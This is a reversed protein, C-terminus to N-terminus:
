SRKRNAEIAAEKLVQAQGAMFSSPSPLVMPSLGFAKQVIVLAALYSGQPSPHFHDAGTLPLTPDRRLAAAWADGVPFLMGGVDKAANAYSESVAPFANQRDGEPWVMFLATKAGAKRIEVDFRKTFERLSTQSEPLASPGQQLVVISWGGRAIAKLADGQQWHDELSFGGFAVMECTVKQGVELALSSVLGPLNNAQTLSNGIFLMRPPPAAPAADLPGLALAAILSLRFVLGPSV